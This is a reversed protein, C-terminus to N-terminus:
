PDYSRKRPSGISRDTNHEQRGSRGRSYGFLQEAGKNWSTIVGNLNKSIIADDSSEIIAALLGTAQEAWAVVAMQFTLADLSELTQYASSAFKGLSKMLREDEADFKRDNHAVAWITGVAKRQVYFPILLAEEVPPKVPEFYTYRRQLQRM